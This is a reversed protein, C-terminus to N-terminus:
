GSDAGPGSGCLGACGPLHQPESARAIIRNLSTSSYCGLTASLLLVFLLSDREMRSGSLQLALYAGGGFLIPLLTKAGFFLLPANESRIGANIFRVRLASTEWKVNPTSLKAFPGVVQVVTKMWANKEPAQVMDQVRQQTRTTTTLLLVGMGGLTVALFILLYIFLSM